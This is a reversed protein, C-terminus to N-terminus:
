DNPNQGPHVYDRLTLSLDHLVAMDPFLLKIFDGSHRTLNSYLQGAAGSSITGAEATIWSDPRQARSDAAEM